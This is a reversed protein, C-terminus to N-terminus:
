LLIRAKKYIIISHHHELFIKKISTYIGPLYYLVLFISVIDCLLVFLLFLSGGRRWLSQRSYTVLCQLLSPDSVWFVYGTESESAESIISSSLSSYLM